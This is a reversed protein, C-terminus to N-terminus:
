VDVKVWLAHPAIFPGNPKLECGEHAALPDVQEPDEAFLGMQRDITAQWAASM